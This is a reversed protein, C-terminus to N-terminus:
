GAAAMNGNEDEEFKAICPLKAPAASTNLLKADTYIDTVLNALTVRM